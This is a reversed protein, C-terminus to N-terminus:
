KSKSEGEAQSAANIKPTSKQNRNPNRNRNKNPNQDFHKKLAANYKNKEKSQPKVNYQLRTITKLKRKAQFDTMPNVNCNLYPEQVKAEPTPNPNRKQEPDNQFDSQWKMTIATQIATQIKM